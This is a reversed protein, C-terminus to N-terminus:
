CRAVAVSVPLVLVLLAKLPTARPSRCSVGDQCPVGEFIIEHTPNEAAPGPVVSIACSLVSRRFRTAPMKNSSLAVAVM